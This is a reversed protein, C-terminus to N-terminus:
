KSNRTFADPANLADQLDRADFRIANSVRLFPLTKATVLKYVTATSVSLLSAVERVTLLRRPEIGSPLLRTTFPTPVPAVLAIAHSRGTPVDGQIQLPKLSPSLGHSGTRVGGSHRRSWPTAPEFGTEGVM